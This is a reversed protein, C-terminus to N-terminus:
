IGCEPTGDLQWKFNLKTVSNRMIEPQNRLDFYVIGYLNEFLDRELQSGTLYDNYSKNYDM